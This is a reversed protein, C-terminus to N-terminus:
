ASLAITLSGADHIILLYAPTVRNLIPNAVGAEDSPLDNQTSYTERNHQEPSFRFTLPLISKQIYLPMIRIHLKEFSVPM